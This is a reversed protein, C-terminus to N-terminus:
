YGQRVSRWLCRLWKKIRTMRSPRLWNCVERWEAGVSIVDPLNRPCFVEEETRPMSDRIVGHTGSGDFGENIVLTRRPYLALGGSLFVSLQWRVAWSDVQGAFQQELMTFYDYAGDLNFRKRLALDDRVQAYGRADPDFAKWARQWTAWGWSTTLPFFMADESVDVNVPFMYGSIQMVAQEEQYRDLASNMFALFAPAVILDDELVIIRGYQNLVSTVGEIISRALGSNTEREIITVSKFGDVGHVFHRVKHVLMADGSSKPADSFIILDSKVALRNKKLAEITKRTHLPRNYVFLAIPALLADNSM